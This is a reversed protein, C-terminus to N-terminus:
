EANINKKPHNSKKESFQQKDKRCSKKVVDEKINQLIKKGIGKVNLLDDVSNIPKEKKYEIISQLKKVGIGKICGLGDKSAEKVQSISMSLLLSSTLITSLLITKLM